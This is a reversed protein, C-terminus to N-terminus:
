WLALASSQERLHVPAFLHPRESGDGLMLAASGLGIEELDARTEALSAIVPESSAISGLSRSADM